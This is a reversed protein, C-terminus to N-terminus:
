NKNEEIKNSEETYQNHPKGQHLHQRVDLEQLFTQAFHEHTQPLM